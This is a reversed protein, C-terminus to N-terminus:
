EEEKKRRQLFQYTTQGTVMLYIHLAILNALLFAFVGMLLGAVWAFGLMVWQGKGYAAVSAVVVHVVIVVAYGFTALISVFFYRYNREGVCNNFWM